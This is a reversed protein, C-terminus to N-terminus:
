RSLVWRTLTPVMAGTAGAVYHRTPKDLFAPGAIDLHAWKPGDVFESLFLAATTAGAARGGVNKIGGWEAKLMDKYFDPLPMRWLGEGATEAANLLDKVLGDENSFLGTYHPGLAVVAAGTLTAIDVLEEVGQECALHLCDALVLRGEADTNHVEVTKGNYMRLIDGLKYSGGGNMNEVAGVFGHVEADPELDRLARFVGLVTGGGGMDCRMTQMSASPKLSLGGSDFTVGKGVLGLTATPTGAPKYHLHILRPPRVSGQGVAIIGGMGAARIRPEDWIDVTIRDSALAEAAAALTEPYIDAPPGNVLDRALSQGAALAQAVKVASDDVSGVLSVVEARPLRDAEPKFGDYRYNGAIFGEVVAATQMADLPGFDLSVATAKKARALTGAQGGARRYADHDPDGGLGVLALRTAGEVGMAPYTVKSG